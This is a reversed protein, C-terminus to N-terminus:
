ASRYDSMSAVTLSVTAEVTAEMMPRMVMVLVTLRGSSAQGSANHDQGETCAAGTSGSSLNLYRLDVYWIVTTCGDALTMASWATSDLRSSLSETCALHPRM